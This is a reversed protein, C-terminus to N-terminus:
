CAPEVSRGIVAGAAPAHAAAADGHGSSYKVDGDRTLELFASREENRAKSQKGTSMRPERHIQASCLMDQAGRVHV